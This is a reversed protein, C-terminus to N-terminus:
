MSFQPKLNKYKSNQLMSLFSKPDASSVNTLGMTDRLPGPQNKAQYYVCLFEKKDM